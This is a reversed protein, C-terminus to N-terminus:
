NQLIEPDVHNTVKLMQQQRQGESWFLFFYFCIFFSVMLNWNKMQREM